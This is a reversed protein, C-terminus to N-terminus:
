SLYCLYGKAVTLSSLWLSPSICHELSGKRFSDYGLQQVSVLLQSEVCKFFFDDPWNALTFHRPFFYVCSLVAQWCFVIPKFTFYIFYNFCFKQSECSIFAVLQPNFHQRYPNSHSFACSSIGWRVGVTASREIACATLTLEQLFGSSAFPCPLFPPSLCALGPCEAAGWPAM